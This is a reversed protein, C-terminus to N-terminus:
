NKGGEDIDIFRRGKITLLFPERVAEGSQDFATLGTVGNFGSTNLIRDRVDSRLCIQCRGLTEFVMRATDYAIAEIFGPSTKFAKQFAHSFQKINKSNSNKFFGDVLHVPFVYYGREKLYNIADVQANGVGLILVKM